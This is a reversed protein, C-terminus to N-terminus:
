GRMEAGRWPNVSVRVKLASARGHRFFINCACRNSTRKSRQACLQCAHTPTLVSSSFYDKTLRVRAPAIFAAKITKHAVIIFM